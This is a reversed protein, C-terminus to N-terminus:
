RVIATPGARVIAYNTSGADSYAAVVSEAHNQQFAEAFEDAFSRETRSSEAPRSTAAHLIGRLLAREQPNLDEAFEDLKNFFNTIDEDSYQWGTM